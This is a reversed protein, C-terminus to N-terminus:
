LVEHKKGDTFDINESPLQDLLADEEDIAANIADDIDDIIIDNQDESSSVQEPIKTNDGVESEDDNM